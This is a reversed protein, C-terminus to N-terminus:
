LRKFLLIKYDSWTYEGLKALMSEGVKFLIRTQYETLSKDNSVLIRTPWFLMGGKELLRLSRREMYRVVDDASIKARALLNSSHFADIMLIYGGESVMTLCNNIAKFMKQIDRIMSFVISSIILHYKKNVLYCQASSPIYRIQPHPNIEKALKIMEPFDVADIQKFGLEALFKAIDGKGCGIDLVCGTKQIDYKEILRSIIEFEKERFCKNYYTNYWFLSDSPSARKRWYEDSDYQRYTFIGKLTNRIIKVKLALFQSKEQKKISTMSIGM